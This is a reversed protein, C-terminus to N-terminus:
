RNANALLWPLPDVQIDDIIVEFHLHAGTSQGTSGVLGLQQGVEVSDGVSVLMSSYQMHGYVTRLVQGNIVHEVIVHVGLGADSETAEVVTGAAVSQIPFGDGPNLDIGKHDSSCGACSRFGFSSSMTTTAPVPWQVLSFTSTLFSDRTVALEGIAPVTYSQHPAEVVPPEMADASSPLGPLSLMMTSIALSSMVLYRRKLSLFGRHEPLTATPTRM